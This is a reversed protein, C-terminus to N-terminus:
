KTFEVLFNGKSGATGMDGVVLSLNGLVTLTKRSGDEFELTVNPGNKEIVRGRSKILPKTGQVIYFIGFIIGLSGLIMFFWPALEMITRMGSSYRLYNDSSDLMVFGVIFLFVGLGISAFGRKKFM